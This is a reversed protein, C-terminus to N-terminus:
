ANEEKKVRNAEPAVKAVGTIKEKNSAHNKSQIQPHQPSLTLDM